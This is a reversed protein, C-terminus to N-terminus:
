RAVKELDDLFPQYKGESAAAFVILINSQHTRPAGNSGAFVWGKARLAKKIPAIDFRKSMIALLNTQSQAVPEFGSIEKLRKLVGDKSEECMRVLKLYGEAGLYNFVAWAVAVGIAPRDGLLGPDIGHASKYGLKLGTTDFSAAKMTEEDRYVICGAPYVGYGAKHPDSAISRLGKVRFDFRRVPRGLKEVWPCYFGGFAADVHLYLDREEAIEGLEEIPDITGYPNTACTAFIGITDQRIAERVKDPSVSAKSDTPVLIPKLGLWDMAKFVSRHMTNPVVVSGTRKGSLKLAARMANFNSETGGSTMNGASRRDHWLEGVMSVLESEMQSTEDSTSEMFRLHAEKAVKYVDPLGSLQHVTDFMKPVLRKTETEAEQLRKSIESAPRGKAPIKLTVNAPNTV